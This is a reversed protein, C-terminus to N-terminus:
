KIDSWASAVCAYVTSGSAGAKDIWMSGSTCRGSPASRSVTRTVGDETTSYDTKPGFATNEVKMDAYKVWDFIGKGTSTTINANIAVFGRLGGSGTAQQTNILYHGAIDGQTYTGVWHLDQVYTGRSSNYVVVIFPPTATNGTDDLMEGGTIAARGELEIFGDSSRPVRNTEWHCGTATLLDTIIMYPGTDSDFSTGTATVEAVASTEDVSTTNGSISGGVVTVLESTDVELGVGCYHINPDDILVDFANTVKIGVGFGQALNNFTGISIDSFHVGQTLASQGVNIAQTSNTSGSGIFGCGTMGTPGNGNNTGSSWDFAAGSAPTYDIITRDGPACDFRVPKLVHITSTLKYEGAGLFVIGGSRAASDYAAKIAATADTVGDAVAGFDAVNFVQGGSDSVKGAFWYDGTAPDVCSVIHQAGSSDRTYSSPQYGAPCSVTQARAVNVGITLTLAVLAVILLKSAGNQWM